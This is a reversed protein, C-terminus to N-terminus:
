EPQDQPRAAFGAASSILTAIIDPREEHCLHGLGDITKLTGSAVITCARASERPAITKDNAAAILLLPTQLRPLDKAFADLDWCAMMALTGAIHQPSSFIRTYIDVYGKPTKSGTGLLLNEVAGRNNARWAVFRPMFPNLAILKALPSFFQGALGQFPLLAGNVSVLVDPTILRDITMRILIAAGASHGAAFRPPLGLSKVLLALAASMGPLSLKDRSPLDTFGHGPLDPVVVTFAKALREAVGSWSHTSAGTGHVLLIVPGSGMVQVHWRFGAAEVFRSAARNPWDRGDREWILRDAM